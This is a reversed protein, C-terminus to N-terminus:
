SVYEIRLTGEVNVGATDVRLSITANEPVNTLITRVADVIGVNRISSATTLNSAAYAGTEVGDAYVSVIVAGTVGTLELSGDVNWYGARKLSITGNSNSIKNNTNLVTQFPIDQGVVSTWNTVRGLFM